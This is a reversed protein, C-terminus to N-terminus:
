SIWHRQLYSLIYRISCHSMWCELPLRDVDNERMYTKTIAILMFYPLYLTFKATRRSIPDHFCLYIRETQISRKHLRVQYGKWDISVIMPLFRFCPFTYRRIRWRTAPALHSNWQRKYTTCQRVSVLSRWPNGVITGPAIVTWRM